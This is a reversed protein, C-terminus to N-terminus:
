EGQTSFPNFDDNNPTAEPRNARRESVFVHVDANSGRGGVEGDAGLTYVVVEDRGKKKYLYEKGFPDLPLKNIYDPILLTLGKGNNPYKREDIYYFRVQSAVQDLDHSIRAKEAKDLQNILTPMFAGVLIGMIAVVIMMELLTFGKQNKM